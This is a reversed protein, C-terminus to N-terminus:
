TGSTADRNNANITADARSRANPTFGKSANEEM